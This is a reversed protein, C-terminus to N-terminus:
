RRAKLGADQTEEFFGDNRIYHRTKLGTERPNRKTQNETGTKFFLFVDNRVFDACHPIGRRDM